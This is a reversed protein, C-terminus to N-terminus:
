VTLRVAGPDDERFVRQPQLGGPQDDAEYTGIAVM